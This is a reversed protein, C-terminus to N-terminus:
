THKLLTSINFTLIRHGGRGGGKETIPTSGLAEQVRVSLLM